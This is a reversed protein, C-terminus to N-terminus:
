PREDGEVSAGDGSRQRPLRGQRGLEENWADGKREERKLFRYVPLLLAVALAIFAFFTVVIVIHAQQTDM